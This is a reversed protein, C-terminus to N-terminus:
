RGSCSGSDRETLHTIVHRTCWGLRTLPWPLPLKSHRFGQALTVLFDGNDTHLKHPEDTHAEREFVSTFLASYVFNNDVSDARGCTWSACACVCVRASERPAAARSFRHEARKRQRRTVRKEAAGREVCSDFMLSSVASREGHVARCGHNLESIIPVVGPGQFRLFM